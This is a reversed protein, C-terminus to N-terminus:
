QGQKCQDRHGLGKPFVKMVKLLCQFSQYPDQLQGSCAECSATFVSLRTGRLGPQPPWKSATCLLDLATFMNKTTLRHTSLIGKLWCKHKCSFTGLFMGLCQLWSAHTKVFERLRWLLTAGHVNCILFLGQAAKVQLCHEPAKPPSSIPM